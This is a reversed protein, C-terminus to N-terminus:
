EVKYLFRMDEEDGTLMNHIDIILEGVDDTAQYMDKGTCWVNGQQVAKFDSFLESKNMLDNLSNLPADISSNYILYDADVAADYFLEMTTSVSSRTSDPDVIDKLAYRGGAIEIMKPVYDTSARVVVSGDSSIYFFAVTKETNPYDKYADIVQAREDFFEEAEDEKDILAAYLKIWETRALPHTEYSSRDVIVPIGLLEIMEKVKPTHFIMTSEIALDCGGQVLLEYDPESYKGAYIMDGAEMAAVASEISWGSAQLSSLTVVDLADLRSFLAMASTAALYINELPQQVVVIDSALGDPAEEDEPVVLITDGDVIKILKFGDEYYDVSFCEAYELDMSYEYAYGPVDSPAEACAPLVACTLALCLSLLLALTRKM